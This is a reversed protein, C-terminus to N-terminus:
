CYNKVYIFLKNYISYFKESIFEEQILKKLFQNSYKLWIYKWKLTM